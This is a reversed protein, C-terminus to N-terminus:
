VGDVGDIVGDQSQLLGAGYGEGVPLPALIGSQVVGATGHLLVGEPQGPLIPLIVAGKDEVADLKRLIGLDGPLKLSRRVLHGHDM